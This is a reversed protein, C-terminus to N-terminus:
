FAGNKLGAMLDLVLEINVCNDDEKARNWWFYFLVKKYMNCFIFPSISISITIFYVKISNYMTVEGLKLSQSLCFTGAFYNLTQWRIYYTPCDIKTVRWNTVIHWVLGSMDSNFVFWSISLLTLIYNYRFCCHAMYHITSTFGFFFRILLSRCSKQQRVIDFSNCM